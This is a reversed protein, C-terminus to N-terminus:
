INLKIWFLKNIDELEIRIVNGVDGQFYYLYITKAWEHKKLANALLESELGSIRRCRDFDPFGQVQRDSDIQGPGGQFSLAFTKLVIIM